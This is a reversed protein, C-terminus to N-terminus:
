KMCLEDETLGDRPGVKHEAKNCELKSTVICKALKCRFWCGLRISVM